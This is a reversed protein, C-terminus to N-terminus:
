MYRLVILLVIHAVSSGEEVGRVTLERISTPHLRQMPNKLHRYVQFSWSGSIDYGRSSSKNPPKTEPGRYLQPRNRNCVLGRLKYVSEHSLSAAKGLRM